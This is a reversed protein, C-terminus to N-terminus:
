LRCEFSIFFMSPYMKSKCLFSAYKKIRNKKIHQQRCKEIKEDEADDCQPHGDCVLQPHLCHLLDNVKCQFSYDPHTCAQCGYGPEACSAQCNHPDLQAEAKRIDWDDSGTDNLLDKYIEIQRLIWSNTDELVEQCYIGRQYTSNETCFNEIYSSVHADISCNGELLHIQDSNDECKHYEFETSYKNTM